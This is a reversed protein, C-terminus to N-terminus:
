MIYMNNHNNITQSLSGDKGSTGYNLQKLVMKESRIIGLHICRQDPLETSKGNTSHM